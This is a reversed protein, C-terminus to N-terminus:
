EFNVSLSELIGPLSCECGDEEETGEGLHEANEDTHSPLALSSEPRVSIRNLLSTWGSANLAKAVESHDPTPDDAGHGGHDHVQKVLDRGSETQKLKRQLDALDDDISLDDCSWIKILSRINRDTLRHFDEKFNRYRVVVRRVLNDRGRVLQEVTGLTWCTDLASDSKQFMIIDGEKLDQDQKFWKPQYFLKPLYSVNWIKFWSDYIKQVERLLEGDGAPLRMPGNLARENSRGVRLMNPCLMKLLPTNDQDRGYTYGIPLNNLQNEVLKLLTQLGTAHLRKTYLGAEQLSDQVTRIRREVQGHQNHGSVPCVSFEIGYETHLRHQTDVLNIEVEQVAKLMASDEDVMIVKPLGVECSLRTIGDVMGSTDSKEIVQLNTLRTVPCVFVIVWCKAELVSRNRTNKTFGPVYVKVPGFLDAQTAWFPPCISLQHDSIPGMPMQMYQKRRMRCRVCQEGLEKYLNAGQMIHVHTLSIRNCTEIGKHRALEWHVHSAISYALPSHRDIVPVHAKIGLRMLDPIELDGTEVFNMGDIIRGRSVLIGDKMVAIKDVKAKPNFHLVEQTAKTYLYLLAQHIFKDTPQVINVEPYEVQIMAFKEDTNSTKDRFYNLFVAQDNEEGQCSELKGQIHFLSFKIQEQKATEGKKGMIKRRCKSVFTHVLSLIRVVKRFNFKTPVVLYDSFEVRKQILDVRNSNVTNCWADPIDNGFVLGDRYEDKDKEEVGRLESIPRLIGQNIAESVEGHMWPRGNEWESDPGVDTLKVKEPRTGVDALNEETVVHYLHDLSSGRRIQIVRNRHFMSLTKKEASVWCLAIVSDGCIIYDEVWESLLKRLLWCMNSANTLAQLEGKPITQNKVALLNRSLVHKCSWGGAKKRFGAWAGVVQLKKAFDCLVILRMKGDVADAPMIAREFRLGRLKEWLLFQKLWRDRLNDPMPVDWDATAELTDRLLDKAESLVPGLKGCSDFISAFKSTVHRRSLKKPVFENIEKELGSFFRTDERLRGRRKKGFHLHPVKLEYFDLKPFWKFGGISLTAGDKSVKSDPDEGSYTWAKCKLNVRSFVEDAEDALKKCEEKTEKSDGADDVYMRDEILKKVNPKEDGVLNSLKRMGNESQASVSGVGYILTKIVGELVPSDPDLNEKYLFRQLNWHCPLLKFSNYFQQLDGTVAFKGTKFGLILKLLNITDVKGQCVLNNLSKGGTGDPRVRTRSSADLVPRAPTTVSDSFAIRWPIFYQVEKKEFHLKDEQRLDKMFAAHGNEFLKNFAKTIMEKTEEQKHYLKCQQDLIKNAQDYNTTLYDREEGRLPLTCVIRKNELDLKVSKDVLEMEAEEKLSVAETKDSNKCAPCDRCKVCRYNLDIGCEQELRLKRIERLTESNEMGEHDFIEEEFTNSCSSYGRGYKTALTDIVSQDKEGSTTTCLIEEESDAIFSEVMELNVLQQVMNCEMANHSMAFMEEELSMPNSPIIPPGLQRLRQLGETFHALLAAPNGIKQALFQFSTHPGGILANIGKDHAVLRSEYITLGCDLQRIPVPFINTYHIGLLVDVRGGVMSPLKCSQLMKDSPYSSKVETEAKTTDIHPFDCTIQEMTVGRVLQKKGDTRNLQVLWEDNAVVATDGVGGMKFPGKALMTGRLEKLPIENRFIAESCGSDFFTYVPNNLGEAGLFMFVPSGEPPSVTVVDPDSKKNFRHLNRVARKIGINEKSCYSLPSNVSPPNRLGPTNQKEEEAVSILVLRINSKTRLQDSFKEMQQRNEDGHKSCVWMHFLCKESKCSYSSKRTIIPCERNHKLSYQVDKGMCKLCFKAEKAIVLRQENGLSAFKPCGTAYDSVHKEFLNTGGQTELVKCIRCDPFNQPKPFTIHGSPLQAPQAPPVGTPKDKPHTNSGLSGFILERNQSALKFEDLKNIIQNFKDQKYGPVRMLKDVMFTPFLKLIQALKERNYIIDALEEQTNALEVIEQLSTQIKIIWKVQRTYCDKSGEAPWPGVSMLKDVRHMVVRMSDGCAHELIELARTISNISSPVLSKAYGQLNEKLKAIQNKTSTRNQVAADLFDKKFKFFDEGPDGSFIPWKIQEGRNSTDLSFLHRKQDQDEAISAIDALLSKTKEVAASVATHDSEQLRHVATKILFDQYLNDIGQLSSKWGSLKQMTRSILQDEGSVLEGVSVQDLELDLENCKEMVSSKLPRAIALAEEKKSDIESQQLALQQRQLEITAQEFASMPAPAPVLQNVKAMVQFKHQNVLSVVSSMDAEWQLKEPSSLSDSHELLFKRVAKRFKNRAHNIKELEEKMCPATDTTIMAPDLDSVMDRVSSGQERLSEMTAKMVIDPTDHLGQNLVSVEPSISAIELSIDEIDSVETSVLQVKRNRSRSSWFEQNLKYSPDELFNDWTGITQFQASISVPTSSRPPLPPPASSFNPNSLIVSVQSPSAVPTILNDAEVESDLYSYPLPTPSSPAFNPLTVVAPVAPPLDSTSLNPFDRLQSISPLDLFPSAGPPALPAEHRPTGSPLPVSPTHVPHTPPSNSPTLPQAAKQATRTTRGTKPLINGRNHVPVTGSAQERPQTSTSARVPSKKPDRKQSEIKVLSPSQPTM